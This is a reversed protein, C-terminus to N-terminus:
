KIVSLYNGKEEIIKSFQEITQNKFNELLKAKFAKYNDHVPCPNDDNCRSLGLFCGEFVDDSDIIHIVDCIHNQRDKKTMYFGGGPGKASSIVNSRSLQQLLKAIFHKPINLAESIELAGYKNCSSSKEALFLVSRIAYKSANSLMLRLKLIKNDPM